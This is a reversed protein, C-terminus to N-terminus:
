QANNILDIENNKPLHPMTKVLSDNDNIDGLFPVYIVADNALFM